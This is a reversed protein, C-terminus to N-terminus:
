LQIAERDDGGIKSSIPIDRAGGVVTVVGRGVMTVVGRGVITVVGRGVMTVVGWM